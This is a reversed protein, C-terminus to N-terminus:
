EVLGYGDDKGKEIYPLGEQLWRPAPADKLYHDFFQYMRVSLDMRAPWERLNHAEKNYVLMWAPKDLRRMANFLEIGQYWPVAGDADNAMILLPTNIDPAFFVPSNEIYHFPKEWLTGGIRSQTQEYQFQRVMGSEWRIGGYASVMNSVPAGAMAARFMNTKTVLYAIQYGGWSQGQLAMRDRNIFPYREAMAYTGSVIANYASRGPFGTEYTIDPMFVIYGNSTCYAPNIISRSPSPSTYRHLNQSTKEYFYVIMPYKKSPDFDEPLYLLGQLKKNNFDFWEVLEVKGWLYDSAFSNAASIKKPSSFGADSSWLDPYEQFTGKRWLYVDSNEAKQLQSYAADDMVVQQMSLTKMNLKYYGSQKNKENFASLWIEDASIHYQESSLMQHRLRINNERGYGKTLNIAPTKGSPDIKWVDFKEYILVFDDNEGWGGIGYPRADAPVDNEEDYFAVNLNGTLNNRSEDKLSYSYWNKDAPDYQIIYKGSLSLSVRGSAKQIIQKKEGTNVDVVYIDRARNGTWSSERQYLLDSVGMALPALGFRDRSIDPVTEDALPVLRTNSLHFVALFNEEKKQKNQVQQQTQLIPDQWHWVDVSHKEEDLLTDKPEQQPKPAVGFFLRGNDDSFEPSRYESVAFGSPMGGYDMDIRHTKPRRGDQYVFLDYVKVKATDSSLMWAVYGGDKSLTLHKYKGIASDLLLLGQTPIDFRFIKQLSLTDDKNTKGQLFLVSKGNESIQYELVDDYSVSSALVPNHITLQKFSEQKPKKGKDETAPEEVPPITDFSAEIQAVTDSVIDRKKESLFAMWDSPEKPIQYSVVDEFKSTAGSQFIYIGLSDKPMEDPKKKDVKAQRVSDRPPAIHFVAFANSPSFAPKAGRPFTFQNETNIRHIILNGDLRQPNLLYLAHQGDDSVAANTLEEWKEYDDHSINKKEQAVALFPLAMFLLAIILNKM